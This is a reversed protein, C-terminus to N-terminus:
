LSVEGAACGDVLEYHHLTIEGACCATLRPIMHARYEPTSSHAHDEAASWTQQIMFLNPDEIARYCRFSHAGTRKREPDDKYVTIERAVKQFEDVKEPKLPFTAISLVKSAM